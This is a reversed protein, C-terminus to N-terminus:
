VSFCSACPGIRAVTSMIIFTRKRLDEERFRRPASLTLPSVGQGKASEVSVLEGLSYGGKLRHIRRLRRGPSSTLPSSPTTFEVVRRRFWLMLYANGDFFFLQNHHHHHYRSLFRSITMAAQKVPASRNTTRFMTRGSPLVILIMSTTHLCDYHHHTPQLRRHWAVCQSAQLKTSKSTTTTNRLM